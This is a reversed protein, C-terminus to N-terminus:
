CLTHSWACYYTGTDEVSLKTINLSFHNGTQARTSKIHAPGVNNTSGPSVSYALIEMQRGPAHRYWYVSPNSTEKVLNVRFKAKLSTEGALRTDFCIWHIIYEEGCCGGCDIS